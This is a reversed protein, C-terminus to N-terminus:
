WQGDEVGWEGDDDTFVVDCSKCCQYGNQCKAYIGAVLLILGLAQISKM